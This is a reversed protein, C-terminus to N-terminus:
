KNAEILRIGKLKPGEQMLLTTYTNLESLNTKKCKPYTHSALHVMQPSPCYGLQVVPVTNICRCRTHSNCTAASIHCFILKGFLKPSVALPFSPHIWQQRNM